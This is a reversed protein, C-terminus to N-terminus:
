QVPLPLPGIHHELHNLDVLDGLDAVDPEIIPYSRASLRCRRDEVDAAIALDRDRAACEVRPVEASRQPRGQPAHRPHLLAQGHPGSNPLTQGRRWDQEALADASEDCNPLNRFLGIPLGGLRSTQGFRNWPRGSDFPDPHWDWATSTRGKLDSGRGGDAPGRSVRSPPSDCFIVCHPGDQFSNM